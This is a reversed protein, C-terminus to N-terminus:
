SVAVITYLNNIIAILKNHNSADPVANLLILTCTHQCHYTEIPCM